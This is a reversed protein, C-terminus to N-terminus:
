SGAPMQVEASLKKAADADVWKILALFNVLTPSSPNAQCMNKLSNVVKNYTAAYKEHTLRRVYTEMVNPAIADTSGDPLYPL